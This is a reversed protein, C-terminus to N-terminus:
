YDGAYHAIVHSLHTWIKEIRNAEPSDANGQRQYVELAAYLKARYTNVLAAM